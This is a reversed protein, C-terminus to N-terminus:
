TILWCDAAFRVNPTAPMQCASGPFPAPLATGHVGSEPDLLYLLGAGIGVGGALALMTSLLGSSTSCEYGSEGSQGNRRM